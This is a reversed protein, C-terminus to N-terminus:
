RLRLTLDGSGEAIEALARSVQVVRRVVIRYLLIGLTLMILLAFILNQVLVELIQAGVRDDLGEKFSDSFTISVSGIPEEQYLLKRERVMGLSTLRKSEARKALSKGNDDFVEIAAISDNVLFSDLLTGIMSVNFEYVPKGLASVVLDTNIGLERDFTAVSTRQISQYQIISLITLLGIVVALIV